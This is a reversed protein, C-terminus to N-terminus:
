DVPLPFYVRWAERHHAIWPDSGGLPTWPGSEVGFPGSNLSAVVQFLTVGTHSQTHTISKRGSHSYEMYLTAVTQLLTVGTYSQTYLLNIGM